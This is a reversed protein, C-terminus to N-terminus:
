NITESKRQRLAKFPETELLLQEESVSLESQLEALENSAEAELCAALDTTQDLEIDQPQELGGLMELVQCLEERTSIRDPTSSMDESPKM